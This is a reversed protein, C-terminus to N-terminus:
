FYYLYSGVSLISLARAKSQRGIRQEDVNPKMSLPRQQHCKEISKGQKRKQNESTM